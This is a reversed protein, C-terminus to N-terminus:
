RGRVRIVRTTSDTVGAAAVILTLQYDGAIGAPFNVTLSRGAGGDPRGNDAYRIFVPTLAKSLGVSASLRQFFSSGLKTARLSVQLPASPTAPRYVEWYVGVATGAEIDLSGYAQLANRELSPALSADGQQLLLYDSLRTERPLPQVTTRVRAARRGTAALVELSALVPATIPAILAGNAKASDRLVQQAVSGDFADLTLGAVYPARGMELERVLRYAGAVLTTDGRKFRSFQHPLEGFGSAYRPAYRMRAKARRLEWSDDSAGVPTEIATRVPMFDYSPTPEHGTVSPPRPDAVGGNQVSWATPWGYRMQSELLDDGWQLDYPIRGLSHVRSMTRRALVENALDNSPLMWLPQAMRLVRANETARRACPVARYADQALPDIWLVLDTWACRQQAPMAALAKDFAVASAAHRNEEHLALGELAACWWSTGTCRQATAVAVGPRGSEILYRVLMGNVWDDSRDAAQAKTLLELLEEREIRADAREAPPPVDGNNNWYCIRGIQVECFADAGGNYFRLGLRHNQEFQDQRSRAQSGLSGIGGAASADRLPDVAPATLRGSDASAGGAGQGQAIAPVGM